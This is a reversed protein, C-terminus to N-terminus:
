GVTYRIRAKMINMRQAIKRCYIYHEAAPVVQGLDLQAEFCIWCVEAWGERLVEVIVVFEIWGWRYVERAELVASLDVLSM